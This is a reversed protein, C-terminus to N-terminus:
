SLFLVWYSGIIWGVRRLLIWVWDVMIIIVRLKVLLYLIDIWQRWQRVVAITVVQTRIDIAITIQLVRM